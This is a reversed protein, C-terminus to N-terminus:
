GGFYFVDTFKAIEVLSLEAEKVSIAQSLRAGDLFLILNKSKCYNYLRELEVLNYITGVETTNSIYVM